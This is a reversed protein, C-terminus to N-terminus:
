FNKAMCVRYIYMCICTCTCTCTRTYTFVIPLVYWVYKVNMVPYKYPGTDLINMKRDGFPSGNTILHGFYENNTDWFSNKNKIHDYAYMYM